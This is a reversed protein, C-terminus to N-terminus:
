YGTFEILFPNQHNHRVFFCEIRSSFYYLNLVQPRSGLEKVKSVSMSAKLHPPYESGYGGGLIVERCPVGRVEAREEGHAVPPAPCLEDVLRSGVHAFGEAMQAPPGAIHRLVGEDAEEAGLQRLYLAATAVALDARGRGRYSV